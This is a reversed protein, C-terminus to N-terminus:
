VPVMRLAPGEEKGSGQCQDQGEFRSSRLAPAPLDSDFNIGQPPLLPQRLAAEPSGEGSVRFIIKKATNGLVERLLAETLQKTHQHLLVLRNWVKKGICDYSRSNRSFGLKLVCRNRAFRTKKGRKAKIRLLIM